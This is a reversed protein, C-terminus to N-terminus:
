YEDNSEVQNLIVPICKFEMSFTAVIYSIYKELKSIMEMTRACPPCFPMSLKSYMWRKSFRIQSHSEKYSVCWQKRQPWFQKFYQILVGCVKFSVSSVCERIFPNNHLMRYFSFNASSFCILTSILVTHPIAFWIIFCYTTQSNLFLLPPSFSLSFPSFCSFLLFHSFMLFHTLFCSFSLLFAPLLGSWVHLYSSSCPFAPCLCIWMKSIRVPKRSKHYSTIRWWILSISGVLLTVSTICINSTIVNFSLFVPWQFGLTCNVNTTKM